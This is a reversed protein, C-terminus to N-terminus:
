SPRRRFVRFIFTPIRHRSLRRPAAGRSSCSAILPPRMLAPSVAISSSRSSIRCPRTRRPVAPRPTRRCAAAARAPDRSLFVLGSAFVPALSIAAEAALARLFKEPKKLLLGCGDGTKGDTAVAGRHTRRKLSTMGTQVVWHSPVDDLQAILGFGCSDREYSERFVGRDGGAM